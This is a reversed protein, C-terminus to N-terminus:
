LTKLNSIFHTITGIHAYQFISVRCVAFKESFNNYGIWYLIQLVAALSFNVEDGLYRMLQFDKGKYTMRMHLGFSFLQFLNKKINFQIM